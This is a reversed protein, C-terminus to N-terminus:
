KKIAHQAGAIFFATSIGFIILGATACGAALGFCYPTAM